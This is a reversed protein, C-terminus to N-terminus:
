AAEQRAANALTQQYNWPMWQGPTNELHQANRQIENLYDFASVGALEATYILSMFTDGIRAGKQTLYFMANKRHLIAKKLARECINNDLPAGAKRLFLTLKDWHNLMYIIAQGLGSNPEVKKHEFQETFWDKLKDMLPKSQTQHFELRKQPSLQKKKALAENKYVEALIKLVFECEAPFNELVDVFNRRGHTICNALITDFTKPINRSLADCMQIPLPLQSARQALVTEINEGAHKNGTFFLAITQNDSTSVIGSTFVGTREGSHGGQEILKNLRAGCLGLIRMSTDDNHLVKGQAAQRILEEYAPSVLKSSQEIIDWQTSTPLPIGLDAQLKHIRNFPLGCGYKQLAIISSVTETYKETGAKEPATATFIEGCLNCRLKELEYVTASVPAQGVLRVLVGPKNQQYLTGSECEPCNDGSKLTELEVKVKKAGRYEAAGNRGHGKRKKKSQKQSGKTEEKSIVKNLKESSAGFLAKKLRQISVHKAELEQVVFGLTAIAYKLKIYEEENLVSQVRRLIAELEEVKIDLRKTVKPM